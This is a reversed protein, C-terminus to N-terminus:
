ESPVVSYITRLMERAANEADTLQMEVAIPLAYAVVYKRASELAALLSANHQRLSIVDAAVMGAFESAAIANLNVM